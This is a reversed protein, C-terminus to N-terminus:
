PLDYLRVDYILTSNPPIGYAPLGFQGYARQSPIVIKRVGGIKMGQMGEAFGVIGSGLRIATPNTGRDFIYGSKLYGVYSISVWQDTNSVAAGNGGEIDQYYVGSATKTMATIDVGTAAAFSETAPDTPEDPPEAVNLCAGLLATGLVLFARKM